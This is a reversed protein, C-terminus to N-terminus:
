SQHFCFYFLLENYNFNKSNFVGIREITESNKNRIDHKNIFKYYGRVDIKKMTLNSIGYM